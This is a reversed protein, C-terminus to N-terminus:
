KKLLDKLFVFVGTSKYVLGVSSTHVHFNSVALVKSPHLAYHVLTHTKPFSRTVQTGMITQLFSHYILKRDQVLFGVSLCQYCCLLLVKSLTGFIAM